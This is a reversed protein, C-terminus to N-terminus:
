VPYDSKPCPTKPWGALTWWDYGCQNEILMEPHLLLGWVCSGMTCVCTHVDAAYTDVKAGCISTFTQFLSGM